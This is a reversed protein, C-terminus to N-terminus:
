NQRRRARAALQPPAPNRQPTNRRTVELDEYQVGVLTLILILMETPDGNEDETPLVRFIQSCNPYNGRYGHINFIDECIMPLEIEAHMHVFKKDLDTKHTFTKKLKRVTAARALSLASSDKEAELTAQGNDINLEGIMDDFNTQDLFVDSVRHHLCFFQTGGRIKLQMDFDDPISGSPLHIEITALDRDRTDKWKTLLYPLNAKWVLPSKSKKSMKLDEVQAILTDLQEEESTEPVADEANIHQFSFNSSNTSEAGPSILDTGVQEQLDVTSSDSAESEYKSDGEEEEQDEFSVLRQKKEPTPSREQNGAIEDKENSLFLIPM